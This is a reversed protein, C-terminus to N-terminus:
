NKPVNKPFNVPNGDDDFCDDEVEEEEAVKNKALEQQQQQKHPEPIQVGGHRQTALLGMGLEELRGERWTQLFQEKLFYNPFIRVFKIM